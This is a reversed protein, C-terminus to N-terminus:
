SLKPTFSFRLCRTSIASLFDRDFAIDLSMSSTVFAWDLKDNTVCIIFTADATQRLIFHFEPSPVNGQGELTDIFSVFPGFCRIALLLQQQIGVVILTLNDMLANRFHTKVLPIHKACLVQILRFLPNPAGPCM